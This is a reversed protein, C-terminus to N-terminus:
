QKLKLLENNEQERAEKTGENWLTKCNEMQRDCAYIGMNTVRAALLYRKKGDIMMPEKQAGVPELAIILTIRRRDRSNPLHEEIQKSIFPSVSVWQHDMLRQPIIAYQRGAFEYAFYTEETFNRILYGGSKESYKSLLGAFGVNIPENYMVLNYAAELEKPKEQLYVQWEVESRQTKAEQVHRAWYQFPPTQRTWKYYATAVNIAPTIRPVAAGPSIGFGQALAPVFATGAALGLSVALCFSWFVLKKM